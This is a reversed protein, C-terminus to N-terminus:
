SIRLRCFTERTLIVAVASMVACAFLWFFAATYASSSYIRAGAVIAGDWRRDLIVGLVPQLIATLGVVSTNVIGGVAGAAGPHNAERAFAFGIILAGSTFGIGAFLPYLFSRPVGVFLFIGWLAATLLTAALYPAKRRGMRDSLAGLTPGGIAWAVLMTSTLVAAHSREFGYVQTLYPVGWLGAFVLVPAATSGVACSLLWTDREAIVLKLAKGPPLSGSEVVSAHAHSRYGRERPDDRVFLWIAVAGGFTVVASVVMAARWGFAAVAESLPVGGLVGGLNGFLLAVGTVMAFRNTPFWHGALKMCAVFAVAVSAGVLFRGFYATWLSTAMGFLLIGIAAVMAAGASLRRPGIADALLGSPVQMVAYAYFYTASLNGLLAGDLSFERMLEDVMVAPAVRQFFGILYLNAVLGWMLWGIWAPANKHM